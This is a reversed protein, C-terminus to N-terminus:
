RNGLIEGTRPLDIQYKTTSLTIVPEIVKERRCIENSTYRM